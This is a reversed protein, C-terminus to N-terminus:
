SYTVSYNDGTYNIAKTTLITGVPLTGSLQVTTISWVTIITKITWNSYTFINNSVSYTLTNLYKIASEFSNEAVIVTSQTTIFDIVISPSTIFEIIIDNM